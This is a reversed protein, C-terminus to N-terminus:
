GPPGFTGFPRFRRRLAAQRRRLCQHCAGHLYIRSVSRRMSTSICSHFFIRLGSTATAGTGTLFRGNVHLPLLITRSRAGVTLIGTRAAVWAAFRLLLNDIALIAGHGLTPVPGAEISSAVQTISTSQLSQSRRSEM